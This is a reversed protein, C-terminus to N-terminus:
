IVHRCKSTGEFQDQEKDSNVFSEDLAFPSLQLGPGHSPTAPAM